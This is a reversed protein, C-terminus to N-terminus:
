HGETADSTDTDDDASANATRAARKQMAYAAARAATLEARGVPSLRCTFLEATIASSICHLRQLASEMDSEGGKLLILIMLLTMLKIM